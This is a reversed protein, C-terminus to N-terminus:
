NELRVPRNTAGSVPERSGHEWNALRAVSVSALCRAPSLCDSTADLYVRRAVM